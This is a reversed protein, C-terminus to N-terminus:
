YEPTVTLIPKPFDLNENTNIENEAIDSFKINESSEAM